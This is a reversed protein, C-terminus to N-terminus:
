AGPPRDSVILVSGSRENLPVINLYHVVEGQVVEYVPGGAFEGYARVEFGERENLEPEVSQEFVQEPTKDELLHHSVVSTKPQQNADFFLDEQGPQGFLNLIQQLSSGSLGSQLSGLFGDWAIAMAAVKAENSQSSPQSSEENAVATNETATNETATNEVPMDSSTEAVVPPPAPNPAVPQPIVPQPPIPQPIVPQPPIPQSDASEPVTKPVEPPPLEPLQTVTIAPPSELIVQALPDPTKKLPILAIASHLVVSLLVMLGSSQGSLRRFFDNKEDCANVSM